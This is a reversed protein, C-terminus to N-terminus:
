EGAELRVCATIDRINAVNIRIFFSRAQQCLGINGYRLTVHAEVDRPAAMIMTFGWAGGPVTGFPGANAPAIAALVIAAALLARM